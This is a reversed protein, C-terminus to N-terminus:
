VKYQVLILLYTLITGVMTCMTSKDVPFFGMGSLAGEENIKLYLIVLEGSDISGALEYHKRFFKM